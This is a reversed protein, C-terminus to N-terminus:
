AESWEPFAHSEESPANVLTTQGAGDPDFLGFLESPGVEPSVDGRVVSRV